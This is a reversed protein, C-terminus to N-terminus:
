LFCSPSRNYDKIGAYSSINLTVLWSECATTGLRHLGKPTLVNRLRKSASMAESTPVNMCLTPAAQSMTDSLAPGKYTASVCVALERGNKMKARGAPAMPSMTSRRLNIKNVSTQIAPTAMTRAVTVILPRMDGISKSIRVNPREAPSANSLGVQRATKGSSTEFSSRADAEARLPMSNLKARAMPGAIAPMMMAAAPTPVANAM